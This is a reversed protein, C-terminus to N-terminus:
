KILKLAEQLGIELAEEYSKINTKLFDEKNTMELNFNKGYYNIEVFYRLNKKTFYKNKPSHIGVEIFSNHVERLWKQLLSQTPASYENDYHNLSGYYEQGKILIENEYTYNCKIDKFRKEKALKATEFNILKEEM